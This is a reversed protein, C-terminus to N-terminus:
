LHHDYTVGRSYINQLLMFSLKLTILIFITLSTVAQLTMRVARSDDNVIMIHKYYLDSTTVMNGLRSFRAIYQWLKQTFLMGKEERKSEVCPCHVTFSKVRTIIATVTRKRDYFCFKLLRLRM